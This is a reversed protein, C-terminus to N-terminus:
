EESIYMCYVTQRCIIGHWKAHNYGPVWHVMGSAIRHTVQGLHKRHHSVKNVTTLLSCQVYREHKHPICYLMACHYIIKLYIYINIYLKQVNKVKTVSIFKQQVDTKDKPSYISNVTLTYQIESTFDSPESNMTPTIWHMSESFSGRFKSTENLTTLVM